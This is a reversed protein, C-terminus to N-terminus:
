LAPVVDNSFILGINVLNDRVSALSSMGASDIPANLYSSFAATNFYLEYLGCKVKFPSVGNSYVLWIRAAHDLRM